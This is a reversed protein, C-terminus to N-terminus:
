PQGGTGPAGGGLIRKVPVEIRKGAGRHDRGPRPPTVTRRAPRLHRRRPRRGTGSEDALVVFLPMGYDGHPQGLGTVPSEASQPLREPRGRPYRLLGDPRWQPEPPTASRGHIVVTGRSTLTIWEGHRWVGPFMAFPSDHCRRGDPDNRSGIPVSPLPRTVVLGGVEGVLPKGSPFGM